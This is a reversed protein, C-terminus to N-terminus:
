GQLPSGSLYTAIERKRRQLVPIRQHQSPLGGVTFRGPTSFLPTFGIIPAMQNASEVPAVAYNSGTYEVHIGAAAISEEAAVGYPAYQSAAHISTISYRKTVEALVSAPSGTIIALRGDVSEDLRALSDALYARRYAGARDAIEDDMIFLLLTEDAAALADLLAPNDHLRLDRRFWFLSRTSM